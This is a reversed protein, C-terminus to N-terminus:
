KIKKIRHEVETYVAHSIKQILKAQKMADYGRTMVCILYPKNPYYVIGCNHLQNIGSPLEREGYKHAIVVGKPLGSVLGKTFETARLVELAKESYERSLYSANYLVRFFSAYQKVSLFDEATTANPVTIDLDASVKDILSGDIHQELVTLAGNDSKEIMREILDQVAYSKGKELSSTSFIQQLEPTSGTFPVKTPLISPDKEAAKYYAMMVPLKLLSAPAFDEDADIGFTPGNNLDRFYISVDTVYGAAKENAITDQLRGKLSGFEKQNLLVDGEECDLLPNILSYGGSRMQKENSSSDQSVPDNRPVMFWTTGSGLVFCLVSLIITTRVSM